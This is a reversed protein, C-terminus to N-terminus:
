DLEEDIMEEVADRFAKLTEGVTRPQGYDTEYYIYKEAPSGSGTSEHDALRATAYTEGDKSEVTFYKSESIRSDDLSVSYGRSEIEEKLQELNKDVVDEIKDVMKDRGSGYPASFRRDEDGILQTLTSELIQEETTEDVRKEAFEAYVGDFADAMASIQEQTFEDDEKLKEDMSRYADEVEPSETGSMSDEEADFLEGNSLQGVDHYLAEKEEKLATEFDTSKEDEMKLSEGGHSTTFRGLSDHYPNGGNGNLEEKTTHNSHYNLWRSYTNDSPNDVESWLSNYENEVKGAENLFVLKYACNCRPHLVGAKIEEYNATFSKTAGNVDVTLTEGFGLFNETFPIPGRDIIAQCFECPSGTRSYLQKYATDLKGISNLFQLDADYQSHTFARSTENRAILTAREESLHNFERRITKIINARAEGETALRNAREYIRRNLELIDTNQIAMRIQKKTPKKSFWPAFKAPDEKYAKVILDVAEKEIAKEYTRNTIKLIEKLITDIHGDAVKEGNKDVIEQLENTFKFKYDAGFEQNRRTILAGAFLPYLLKWYKQFSNKLRQVLTKRQEEKILDAEEFANSTVNELSLNLAEKQVKEVEKLLKKYANNLQTNEDETLKNEYFDIKPAKEEHCGCAHADNLGEAKPSPNELDAHPELDELKELAGNNGNEPGEPPNEPELPTNPSNPEEPTNSDGEDGQPADKDGYSQEELGDLEIEGVAYQRASEPTYGAYIIDQALTFQANRVATANQEAQYDASSVSRVELTYGAAHYEQPYHQKYDLNLYDLIDELRPLATDQAFSENQVRATERTTGSQEIGLATKSTGSVAFLTTRSIENLSPLAAQDLNVQTNTWNIAGSGNGFIPEGRRHQRVRERFNAFDEDGLIVDTTIIGPSDLNGNLAQRAYDESQKMTYVNERAADMVSWTKNNDFPNLERMDIIQYPLWTRERGDKKREVYYGVEGDTNLVRTIEYPNLMVFKVPKTYLNPFKSPDKSKIEKRVVGLYYVGCLDLYISIDKWFRKETFDTANEVLKLYPHEPAEGHKQFEDLADPNVWTTINSRALTAVKNGRKQVVAYSYGKYLDKDGIKVEDWTPLLIDNGKYKDKSILFERGSVSNKHKEVRGSTNGLLANVLRSRIGM